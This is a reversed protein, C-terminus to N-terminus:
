LIDDIVIKLKDNSYLELVWILVKYVSVHGKFRADLEFIEKEFDPELELTFGLVEASKRAYFDLDKAKTKLTCGPYYSYVM